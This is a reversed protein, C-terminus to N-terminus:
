HRRIGPRRGIGGPLDIVKRAAAVAESGAGPAATVGFWRLAPTPSERLVLVPTFGAVVLAKEAGGGGSAIWLRSLGEKKAVGCIALLLATFLRQRRYNPLTVCNWVYAEGAAPRIELRVEGIWEPRSSLWGYAAIDGAPSIVFCRCGRGLRIPVLDAEWGMAVAVAPSSDPSVEM